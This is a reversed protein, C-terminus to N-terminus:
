CDDRAPSGTHVDPDVRGGDEVEGDTTTDTTTSPADDGDNGTRISAAGKHDDRRGIERALVTTLKDIAAGVAEDVTSARSTVAIPQRGAPRAEIKCRKDADTTRGASEDALHVEVRTLYDSFRALRAGVTTTVQEALEETGSVNSDTNVYIQM